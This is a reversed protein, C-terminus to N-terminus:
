DVCLGQLKSEKDTADIQKKSMPAAMKSIEPLKLVFEAILTRIRLLLPMCTAFVTM